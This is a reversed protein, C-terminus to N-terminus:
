AFREITMSTLTFSTAATGRNRIRISMTTGSAAVWYWPFSISYVNSTVGIAQLYLTSGATGNGRVELDFIGASAATVTFECILARKGVNAVTGAVWTNDAAVTGLSAGSFTFLGNPMDDLTLARFDPGAASGSSPGALVTNASQNGLTHDANWDSPRVLSTDAGDPISSVKSHTISAAM